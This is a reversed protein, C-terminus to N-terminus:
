GPIIRAAIVTDFRIRVAGRRRTEVVLTEEDRETLPGVADTASGDELRFRVTVRQGIPASRLKDTM